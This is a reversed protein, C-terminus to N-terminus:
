KFSCHIEALSSDSRFFSASCIVCSSDWFLPGSLYSLNFNGAPTRGNPTVNSVTRSITRPIRVSKPPIAKTNTPKMRGSIKGRTLYMAAPDVREPNPSIPRATTSKMTANPSQLPTFQARVSARMNATNPIPKETSEKNRLGRTPSSM